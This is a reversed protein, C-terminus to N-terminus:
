KIVDKYRQDLLNNIQLYPYYGSKKWTSSVVKGYEVDKAHGTTNFINVSDGCKITKAKRIENDIFQKSNSESGTARHHSSGGKHNISIKHNADYEGKSYDEGAHPSKSFLSILAVIAIEQQKKAVKEKQKKFFEDISSKGSM